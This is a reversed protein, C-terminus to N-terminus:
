NKEAEWTRYAKEVAEKLYPVLETSLSLGKKSPKWEERTPDNSYYVWLNLVENGRYTMFEVRVKERANKTFEDILQTDSIEKM